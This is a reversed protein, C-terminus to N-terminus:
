EDSLEDDLSLDSDISDVSDSQLVVATHAPPARSRPPTASGAAPLRPSPVDQVAYDPNLPWFVGNGTSSAIPLLWLYWHVGFVQRFNARDGVDFPNVYSPTNQKREMEELTTLNRFVLQFHLFAFSGMSLGFLTAVVLSAITRIDGGSMDSFHIETMRPILTLATFVCSMSLWLLFLLFFKYNGWGVCNNVWPCHHDMKLVCRDCISCHHCRDPKLKHCKWCTRLEGEESREILVGGDYRNFCLREREEMDLEIFWQPIRGPDGAICAVYSALMLLVLLHFSLLLLTSLFWHGHQIMPITYDFLYTYWVLGVLGFVILVPFLGGWWTARNLRSSCTDDGRRPTHGQDPNEEITGYSSVAPPSDPISTSYAHSPATSGLTRRYRQAVACRPSHQQKDEDEDEDEIAFGGRDDDPQVQELDSHIRESDEAKFSGVECEISADPRTHQRHASPVSATRSHSRVAGQAQARRRAEALMGRGPRHGIRGGEHDVEFVGAVQGEIEDLQFRHPPADTSALLPSSQEM